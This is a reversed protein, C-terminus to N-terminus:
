IGEVERIHDLLGTCGALVLEYVRDYGGAYYPDPVELENFEDTHSLLLTVEAHHDTALMKLGALNEDDMAVVYDFHDLDFRSVQRAQLKSGDIGHLELQELTGPHPPQGLHWAGTGASDVVFRDGLGEDIVLQQFVADAMPSRCINGLCVFLVSITDVAGTHGFRGRGAASQPRDWDGRM